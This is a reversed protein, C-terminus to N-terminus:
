SQCDSCECYAAGGSAVCTKYTCQGPCISECSSSCDKVHGCGDSVTGGCQYFSCNKPVPTCGCGNPNGAGGCTNVGSCTNPCAIQAGCGNTVSGCQAGLRPCANAPPDSCVCAGQGNCTSYTGCAKTSSENPHSLAGNSCVDKTCPNNDNPLDGDDAITTMGGNGDCVNKKCDGDTNSLNGQGSPVFSNMCSGATCTYTACLNSLGCDSSTACGGCAGQGDCKFQGTSGCSKTKPAPEHTPEGDACGELMCANGGQPVDEDDAESKVVGHGDCVSRQCDGDIQTGVVSGSKEFDLGCTGDDCTRHGCENDTGPCDEPSSCEPPNSAGGAAEGAQSGNRNGGVAQDGGGSSTEGAQAAADGGRADSGSSSKGGGGDEPEAAPRCKEAVCQQGEACDQDNQCPAALEDEKLGLLEACGLLLAGCSFALTAFRLVRSSKRV